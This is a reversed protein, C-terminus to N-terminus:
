ESEAGNNCMRLSKCGLGIEEKVGKVGSALVVLLLRFVARHSQRYGVVSYSRAIGSNIGETICYFVLGRPAM